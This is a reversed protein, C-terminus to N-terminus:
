ESAWDSITSAGLHVRYKESMIRQVLYTKMRKDKSLYKVMWKVRRHYLDGKGVVHAMDPITYRVCDPCFHKHFHILMMKPYVTGDSRTVGLCIISRAMNRNTAKINRGCYPCFVTDRRLDIEIM